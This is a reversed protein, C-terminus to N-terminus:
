FGVSWGSGGVWLQYFGFGLLGVSTLLLLTKNVKPGLRGAACALLIIAALSLVMVGYFGLLVAVGNAPEERWGKLFLPGLILSWGIYPSPNLWNVTAAKLISSAGAAKSSPEAAQFARWSKWAGWALYLLFIGGGLRLATEMWPPVQTLVLLVLAAIPGDSVLPSFAMPWTRHWGSAITKSVIFTALPGPTWAAWLGFTMGLVLYVGM